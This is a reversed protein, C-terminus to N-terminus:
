GSTPNAPAPPEAPPIPAGNAPEPQSVVATGGTSQDNSLTAITSGDARYASISYTEAGSSSSRQDLDGLFIAPVKDNGTQIAELELTEGDVTADIRVTDAPVTGGIAKLFGDESSERTGVGAAFDESPDYIPIQTTGVRGNVEQVRVLSQFVREDGPPRVEVVALFPDSAGNDWLVSSDGLLWEASGSRIDDIERDLQESESTALRRDFEDSEILEIGNAVATMQDTSLFGSGPTNSNSFVAYGLHPAILARFGSAITAVTAETGNVDVKVPNQFTENDEVSDATRLSAEPDRNALGLLVEAEGSDIRRVSVATDGGEGSTLRLSAAVAGEPAAWGADLGAVFKSDGGLTVQDGDLQLTGALARLRAKDAGRQAIWVPGDLDTEVLLGPADQPVGAVPGVMTDGLNVFVEGDQDSRGLDDNSGVSIFVSQEGEVGTSWMTVDTAQESSRRGGWSLDTEDFQTIPGLEFGSPAATPFPVSDASPKDPSGDSSGSDGCGGLVLVMTLAWVATIRLRPALPARPFMITM